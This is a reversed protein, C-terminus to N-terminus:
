AEGRAFKIGEIFIEGALYADTETDIGGYSVLLDSNAYINVLWKGTMNTDLFIETRYNIM